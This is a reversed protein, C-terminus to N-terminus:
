RDPQGEQESSQNAVVAEAAAKLLKNVFKRALKLDQPPLKELLVYVQGLALSGKGKAKFKENM